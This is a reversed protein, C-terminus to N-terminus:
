AGRNLRERRKFHADMYENIKHVVRDSEEPCLYFAWDFLEDQVHVGNKHHDHHWYEPDNLIEDNDEHIVVQVTVGKYPFEVRWTPKILMNLYTPRGFAHDLATVVADRWNKDKSM